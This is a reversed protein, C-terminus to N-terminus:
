RLQSVKHLPVNPELSGKVRKWENKLITQAALVFEGDMAIRRDKDPCDYLRNIVALLNKSPQEEPNLLLEIKTGLASLHRDPEEPYPHADITMLISHFEALTDRLTDIWKQRFEAVARSGSAQMQQAQTRANWIGIGIAGLSSVLAAVAVIWTTIMIETEGGRDHLHRLQM